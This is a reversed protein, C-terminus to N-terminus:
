DHERKSAAATERSMGGRAPGSVGAQRSHPFPMDDERSTMHRLSSIGSDILQEAPHHSSRDHRAFRIALGDADNLIQQTPVAESLKRAQESGRAANEAREGRIRDPM